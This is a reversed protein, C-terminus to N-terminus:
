LGLRKLMTKQYKEKNREFTPILHPQKKSYQVAGHELMVGYYKGWGVTVDKYDKNVRYTFSEILHTYTAKKILRYPKPLKMLDAVFEKAGAELADLYNESADLYQDILTDLDSFAAIYDTDSYDRRKPKAM